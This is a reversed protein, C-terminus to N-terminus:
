INGATKDTLLSELDAEQEGFNKETIFPILEAEAM